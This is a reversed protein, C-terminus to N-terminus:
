GRSLYEPDGIVNPSMLSTDNSNDWAEVDFISWMENMPLPPDTKDDLKRDILDRVAPMFGLKGSEGDWWERIGKPAVVRIAFGEWLEYRERDLTGEQHLDYVIQFHNLYQIVWVIAMSRDAASARLGRDATRAYARVILPDQMQAMVSSQGHQISVSEERKQQATNQRVQVSIYILTAITVISGVFEGIAGLEMVTM